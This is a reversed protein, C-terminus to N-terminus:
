WRRNIAGIKRIDDFRIDNLIVKEPIELTNLIDKLYKEARFHAKLDQISLNEEEWEKKATQLLIISINDM